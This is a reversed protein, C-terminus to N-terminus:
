EIVETIYKKFSGIPMIETKFSMNENYTYKIDKNLNLVEVTDCFYNENNLMSHIIYKSFYDTQVTYNTGIPRYLWKEKSM